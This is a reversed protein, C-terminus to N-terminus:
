DGCARLQHQLEAERKELPPRESKFVKRLKQENAEYDRRLQQCIEPVSMARCRDQVWVYNNGILGPTVHGRNLEPASAGAAGRGGYVEALPQQYAGLMGFPALYPRPHGNRSVYYKGDTARVCAYLQPLEIPEVTQQRARHATPPEAKPPPPEPQARPKVAPPASMRLTQQKSHQPCPSDQFSITGDVGVCKYVTTQQASAAAGCLGWLLLILLSTRM